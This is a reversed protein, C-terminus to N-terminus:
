KSSFKRNKEMQNTSVGLILVGVIVLRVIYFHDQVPGIELFFVTQVFLAIKIPYVKIM